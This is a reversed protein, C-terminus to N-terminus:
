EIKQVTRKKHAQTNINQRLDSSITNGLKELEFIKLCKRVGRSSFPLDRKNAGAPALLLSVGVDFRVSLVPLHSHINFLDKVLKFRVQNQVIQKQTCCSTINELANSRCELPMSSSPGFYTYMVHLITKTTLERWRLM